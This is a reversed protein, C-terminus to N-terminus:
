FLPSRRAVVEGNIVWILNANEPYGYAEFLGMGNQYWGDLELECDEDDGFWECAIVGDPCDESEYGVCITVGDEPFPNPERYKLLILERLMFKGTILGFWSLM